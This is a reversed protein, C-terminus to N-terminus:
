GTGHRNDRHRRGLLDSAYQAQPLARPRGHPSRTGIFATAIYRDPALAASLTRPEDPQDLLEDTGVHLRRPFSPAGTRRPRNVHRKFGSRSIWGGPSTSLADTREPRRTAPLVLGM